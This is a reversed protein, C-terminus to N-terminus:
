KAKTEVSAVPITVTTLDANAERQSTQSGSQASKYLLLVPLVGLVLGLYIPTYIGSALSMITAF